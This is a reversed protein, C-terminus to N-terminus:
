AGGTQARVDAKRGEGRHTFFPGHFAFCQWEVSTKTLFNEEGPLPHISEALRRREFM